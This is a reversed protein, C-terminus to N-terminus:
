AHAHRPEPSLHQDLIAAALTAIDGIRGPARELAFRAKTGGIDALLRAGGAHLDNM